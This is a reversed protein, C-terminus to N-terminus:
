TVALRRRATAASWRPRPPPLEAVAAALGGAEAIEANDLLPTAAEFLRQVALPLAQGDAPLKAVGIRAGLARPFSVPKRWSLPGAASGGVVVWIGAQVLGAAILAAGVLYTLRQYGQARRWCSMM